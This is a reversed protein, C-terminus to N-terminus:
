GFRESSDDLRDWVCNSPFTPTEGDPWSRRSSQGTRGGCCGALLGLWSSPQRREGMLDRGGHREWGLLCAAQGRQVHDNGAAPSSWITAITLVYARM